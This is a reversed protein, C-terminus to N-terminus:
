DAAPRDQSGAVIRALTERVIATDARDLGDLLGDGREGDVIRRMVGALAAWDPSQAVEDLVPLLEGVEEQDGQSAAAIAAIVPEWQELHGAVGEDDEATPDATTRLIQALAEEAVQADSQLATILEGLRVGDTQEAARIVEALTAPLPGAGGPARLEAALVRQTDALDYTMGTLQRILAAALRHARQVRPDAGAARLYLALNHHSVAIDRPDPQAYRLRIATRELDAAAGRHGLEDELDARTSLVMALMTTDRHDEFVQQCEGLLRDADALRGLRILPGANNFRFRTIEHLGAGRQQKSAHIEANLDLGQQWRGLALASTHGTDLIVERVNWPNVAEDSAPRAPVAASLDRMRTRLVATEATVQEHEGMLSLIQLRRAQDGLQTWPGLGAQRTYGAMQGAMDLAERLRGTNRLLTVLDGAIVSAPWYEDGGVARHLADRLLPEAQAPDATMLARALVAQDKPTGTTAAIHRLAPLAAQIVGPSHDRLTARELLESATDWNRRRLLYPAAALGAWVVMGSDEGGEREQAQDAVALWFAALGADAAERVDLTASDLVTGIAAVVGPHMRYTVLLPLGSDGPQSSRAPGAMEPQILAATALTELLPEPDPPDGPRDLRRWLNGWTAELV